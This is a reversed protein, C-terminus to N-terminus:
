HSPASRLFLFSLSHTKTKLTSILCITIGCALVTEDASRQLHVAGASGVHAGPQTELMKPLVGDHRLWFPRWAATFALQSTCGRNPWYPQLVPILTKPSLRHKKLKPHSAAASIDKTLSISSLFSPQPRCSAETVAGILASTGLPSFLPHFLRTNKSCYNGGCNM